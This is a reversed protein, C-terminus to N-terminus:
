DYLKNLVTQIDDKSLGNSRGTKLVTEIESLAKAKLMSNDAANEAIFSGRGSLTYTVGAAELDSFAKKVTNVNLKLDQALTRISPLQDHPKLIDLMILEVIQNKIQEYIPVRSRLDIAIMMKKETKDM